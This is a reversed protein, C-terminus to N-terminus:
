RRTPRRQGARRGGSGTSSAPTPASRAARRSASSRSTCPSSSSRSSCPGLTSPCRCTDSRAAPALHLSPLHSARLALGLRRPGGDWGGGGWRRTRCSGCVAAGARVGAGGGWAHLVDQQAAPQSEIGGAHDFAPPRGALIRPRRQRQRLGPRAAVRPTAVAHQVTSSRPNSQTRAQGRSIGARQWACAVARM